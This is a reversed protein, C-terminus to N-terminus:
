VGEDRCARVALFTAFLTADDTYGRATPSPNAAEMHLRGLSWFYPLSM